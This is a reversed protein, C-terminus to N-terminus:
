GFAPQEEILNSQRSQTLYEPLPARLLLARASTTKTSSLVDDVIPVTQSPCAEEVLVLCCDISRVQGLLMLTLMVCVSGSSSKGFGRHKLMYLMLDISARSETRVCTMEGAIYACNGKSLYMM